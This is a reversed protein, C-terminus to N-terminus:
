RPVIAFQPESAYDPKVARAMFKDWAARGDPVAEAATALAPQMNSPYGEASDSYGIMEGPQLGLAAAMEPGGCPLGRAATQQAVVLTPDYVEAWTGYFSQTAVDQVAMHYAAGFIWCYGPDMM